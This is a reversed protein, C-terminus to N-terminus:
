RQKTANKAALIKRLAIEQNIHPWKNNLLEKRQRQM